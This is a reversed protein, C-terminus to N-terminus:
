HLNYLVHASRSKTSIKNQLHHSMKKSYLGRLFLSFHCNTYIYMCKGLCRESVNEFEVVDDTSLM